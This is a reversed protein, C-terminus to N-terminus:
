TICPNKKTVFIVERFIQPLKSVVNMKSFDNALGPLSALCAKGRFKLQVHLHQPVETRKPTCFSLTLIKSIKTGRFFNVIGGQLCPKIVRMYFGTLMFTSIRKSNRWMKGLKAGGYYAITVVM